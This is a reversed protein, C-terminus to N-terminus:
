QFEAELSEARANREKMILKYATYYKFINSVYQVTERGIRKAAVLEVNRFWKNPDLGSREAEKRLKAIKAPGANYAAAAFLWQDLPAIEDGKFYRDHLFHLYKVGAHINPELEEINPIGVVPDRATSPLLQMVGIAGAESRKSQDFASEQYGLAGVLLWDLGYQGSYKRLFEVATNFKELEEPDLANSVFHTDELYRKFLINGLLTGKKSTKVFRNVVAKLKPSNKRFAWAIEGGNNVALDPHLRIDKFIQAWFEAKHRDVIAMPLLGANVMELLDSDELNEDADVVEVTKIGKAELSENLYRISAAYSSSPRLHIAKGALGELKGPVETGANTVLIEDVDTLIPDSFDVLAQREPTITLNGVAIDGLGNVLGEILLDRRVPVFVVQVKLTRRKLDKNIQAEFATVMEYALGLQRGRDIFYYTRNYPILVRVRNREIMGDFDGRWSKLLVKDDLLLDGAPEANQGSGDNPVLGATQTPGPPHALADGATAAGFLLCAAAAVRFATKKDPPGKRFGFTGVWGM